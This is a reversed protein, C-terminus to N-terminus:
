ATVMTAATPPPRAPARTLYPLTVTFTTGQGIVSDVEITGGHLEVLKKTLSLGLGSGQYRRGPGAELQEFERFLRPIDTAAIGIGTDRVKLDFMKDGHPALSVEVEGGEDTFKVANSLLNYLIQKFRLPDLWVTTLDPEIQTKLTLQKESVMRKVVSCVEEVAKR